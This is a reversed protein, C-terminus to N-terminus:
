FPIKSVDIDNEEEIVPIDEYKVERAPKPNYEAKSSTKNQPAPPENDFFEQQDNGQGDDYGDNRPKPNPNKKQGFEFKELIIDTAYRKSGDNAEWTRTKLRGQIYIEDGQNFYQSINEASRGFAVINHFEVEEQKQGQDNKWRRNTAVSFNLVANGSPMVKLEPQRTIRGCVQVFNLNM